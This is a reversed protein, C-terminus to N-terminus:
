GAGRLATDLEDFVHTAVTRMHDESLDGVVQVEIPFSWTVPGAAPGAGDPAIIAESGPAPTVYEGEHVLAIGTREVRGGFQFAPMVVLGGEDLGPEDLGSEDLSPEPGDGPGDGPVPLDGPLEAGSPELFDDDVM